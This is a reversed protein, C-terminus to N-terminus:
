RYVFIDVSLSYSSFYIHKGRPLGLEAIDHRVNNEIHDTTRLLEDRERWSMIGNKDYFVTLLQQNTRNCDQANQQMYDIDTEKVHAGETIFSDDSKSSGDDYKNAALRLQKGCYSFPSFLRPGTARYQEVQSQGSNCFNEIPRSHFHPERISHLTFYPFKHVPDMCSSNNDAKLPSLDNASSRSYHHHSSLNYVKPTGCLPETHARFHDDSSYGTKSLCDHYKSDSPILVHNGFLKDRRLTPITPKIDVTALNDVRSTVVTRSLLRDSASEETAICSNDIAPYSNYASKPTKTTFIPMGTLYNRQFNNQDSGRCTNEDDEM